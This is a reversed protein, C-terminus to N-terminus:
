RGLLPKVRRWAPRLLDKGRRVAARVLRRHLPPPMRIPEAGPAHFEFVLYKARGDGANKMGHLEGAAYYIVSMPGVQQGLTEVTGELTVIAVDYADRHPEYGAGPELVTLHSHLKGLWATPGEFLRSTWFPRAGEPPALEGFRHVGTGLPGPAGNPPAQWKFMLYGVPSTGPNRITHHQWAPYYVFAGPRLREVRPSPDDPGAPITLEVEGHLPILIEEEVHSHPPHPSHGGVLVSAHCSMETCTRTAGRFAPFPQWPRAPMGDGLPLEFTHIATEVMLLDGASPPPPPVIRNPGGRDTGRVLIVPPLPERRWRFPWDLQSWDPIRIARDAAAYQFLLALREGRRNRNDTGHWLRGDFFLADGNGMDPILLDAEPEQERTLALLTTPTAHERPMGLAARAEQVSRGLRHSRTIVQLSSHKTTHEIGVWVSVFGGEPGCSEIDSHWPHVQGPQRVVPSAGWLIVNEGVMAAVRDLIAPRTALEYLFREHVARGKSWAAPAPLDERRLYEAIRRCEVPTFLPVPGLYGDRAFDPAPM